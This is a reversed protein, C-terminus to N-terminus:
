LSMEIFANKFKSDQEHISKNYFPLGWINYEKGQWLQEIEAIDKIQLLFDEKWKDNLLLHGGKPEIFIQYQCTIDEKKNILFLVFDPEFPRGDDFAYIKFHRENRILYIEDYLEKLKDHISDIYQILYKEESSGFCDSQAYWDRSSLDLYIKTEIPNCMSRGTEKDSDTNEDISFNLTKNKIVDKILYPKFEKTGKFEIKDSGITLSVENLVEIAIELKQNLTLNEIHEALGNVNISKSGLYNDSNIFESISKLNPLYKQLNDFKYFDLKNIAKRVIREGFDTLKFEKNQTNPVNTAGTNSKDNTLAREENTSGTRLKITHTHNIISSKLSFIDERNYKKQENKFILGSKYFPTQAFNDKVFLERQITTPAKIGIEILATNLEQIYRPNYSAHYFLEECIRLENEEDSDYKRMYLPQSPDIQFPCYRAGRGILQAEQMTTKGPVGNKADRTDYLRVIDFLNLVDWGENLKDVAFIVRYENNEDELSNIAIQKEVSEEKSNVSIQKEISFDGKLEEILNEFSIHNLLCYDFVKGVATNNNATKIRELTDISLSKIGETFDVQFKQSEKITKSKLLIVPKILLGNKEFIKRRYQSLLVGQIARDVPSLDAQLVQVEKSYGDARFQKLPYDFLLKNEYKQAIVPNTLDATATFELMVNEDHANFIRSITGEWSRVAELEEVSLEKGKKTEANIHHAEDSILVIKESEFDDYTLSNERPTNLDSHLGQVTSFSINIDDPNSNQFNDVERIRIIKDGLSISEAFLYKNSLKNLFNDKTKDIINSSNVFFLFNRYGKQYLYVILGAMILTKGSGTAMHYLLQTPVSKPRNPYSEWYYVFRGFADEQYPRINFAPKLNSIIYSPVLNKYFDQGNFELAVDFIKNLPNSM